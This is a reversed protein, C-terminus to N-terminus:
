KLVSDSDAHNFLRRYDNKAVGPTDDMNGSSSTEIPVM